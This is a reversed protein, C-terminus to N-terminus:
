PLPLCQVMLSDMAEIDEDSVDLRLAGFWATDIVGAGGAGSPASRNNTSDFQGDDDELNVCGPVLLVVAEARSGGFARQGLALFMQRGEGALINATRIGRTRVARQGGEDDILVLALNLQPNVASAIKAVTAEGVRFYAIKASSGGLETVVGIVAPRAARLPMNSAKIGDLGAVRRLRHFGAVHFADLRPDSSRGHLTIVPSSAENVIRQIWIGAAGADQLARLPDDAKQIREAAERTREATAKDSLQWSRLELSSEELPEASARLREAVRPALENWRAADVSLIIPVILGYADEASEQGMMNAIADPSLMGKFPASLLEQVAPIVGADLQAAARGGSRRGAILSKGDVKASGESMESGVEPEPPIPEPQVPAVPVPAAPPRAPSHARGISPIPEVPIVEPESQPLPILDEAVRAPTPARDTSPTSRDATGLKEGKLLSSCTSVCQALVLAVVGLVVLIFFLKIRGAKYEFTQTAKYAKSRRDLSGDKKRM